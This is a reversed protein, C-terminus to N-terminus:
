REIETQNIKMGQIVYDLNESYNMPIIEITFENKEEEEKPKNEKDNEKTRRRISNNQNSM